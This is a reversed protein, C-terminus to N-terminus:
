RWIRLLIFSNLSILNKKKKKQLYTDTVTIYFLIFKSFNYFKRVTNKYSLFLIGLYMLFGYFAFNYICFYLVLSNEKKFINLMGFNIYNSSTMFKCVGHLLFVLVFVWLTSQFLPSFALSSIHIQILTSRNKIFPSRLGHSLAFFGMQMDQYIKNFFCIITEGMCPLDIYVAVGGM